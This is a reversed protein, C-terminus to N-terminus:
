SPSHSARKRSKSIEFFSFYVKKQEGPKAIFLHYYALLYPIPRNQKSQIERFVIMSEKLKETLKHFRAGKTRDIQFISGFNSTLYIIVESFFVGSVGCVLM